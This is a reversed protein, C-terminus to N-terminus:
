SGGKGKGGGRARSSGGVHGWTRALLEVLNGAPRPLCLEETGPNATPEENEAAAPQGILAGLELSVLVEVINLGHEYGHRKPWLCVISKKAIRLVVSCQRSLKTNM